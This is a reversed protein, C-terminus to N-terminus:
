RPETVTADRPARGGMGSGDGVDGLTLAAILLLAIVVLAVAAIRTEAPRIRRDAPRRPAEGTTM